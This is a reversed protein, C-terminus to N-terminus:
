QLNEISVKIKANILDKVARPNSLGPMTIFQSDVSAVTSCRIDGIGLIRQVINEDISVQKIAHYEMRVSAQRWNLIGQIFLLYDDTLILKENKTKAILTVFAALVPLAFLSIPISTGIMDIWQISWPWFFLSYVCLAFLIGNLLLLPLFNFVSTHLIINGDRNKNM